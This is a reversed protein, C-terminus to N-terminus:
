EVVHRTESDLAACDSSWAGGFVSGLEGTSAEVMVWTERAADREDVLRVVYVASPPDPNPARSMPHREYWALLVCGGDTWAVDLDPWGIDREHALVTGAAADATVAVLPLHEATLPSLTGAFLGV